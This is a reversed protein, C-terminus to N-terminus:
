WLVLIKHPNSHEFQIRSKTFADKIDMVIHRAFNCKQIINIINPPIASHNGVLKLIIIDANTHLM